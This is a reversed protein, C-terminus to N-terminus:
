ATLRVPLHQPGNVVISALLAPEGAFEVRIGRHLLEAYIIRLEARALVSGLCFHEGFGLALHRNPKRRIDFEDPRDFVSEDRNASPMWFTVRDGAAVQQGHIEIPRVATRMIHTATSTWRLVEEVASPLLEPERALAAWQDQHELFALMGGAAAIRTNETGGVLLNDCNLLVDDPKLRAGDIEATALISVLDDGPHAAKAAQLDDFYSMIDLHAFRQTLPDDAAFAQSTLKFLHDWDSSPVGMMRCIVYLPVRAAVDTVFDCTGSELAEDVVRRAVETMDAEFGRVSRLAFWEDVLGRLQRHRPADTLALTRGGGPDEGHDAPRLLIGRASSFTAADRYATRVDEYRTLAWFGPLETPPHWYVPANARLWRWQEFPNGNAYLEPDVLNIGPAQQSLDGHMRIGRLIREFELFPYGAATFERCILSRSRGAGAIRCARRCVAVAVDLEAPRRWVDRGSSHDVSATRCKFVQGPYGYANWVM